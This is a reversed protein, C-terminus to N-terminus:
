QDIQIHINLFHVFLRFLITIINHNNSKQLVIRKDTPTRSAAQVPCMALQRWRRRELLAVARISRERCNSVSARGGFSGSCPPPANTPPVQAEDLLVGRQPGRNLRSAEMILVRVEPGRLSSEVSREGKSSTM